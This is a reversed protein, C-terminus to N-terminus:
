PAAPVNSFLAAVPMTFGLVVTNGDLIDAETLIM